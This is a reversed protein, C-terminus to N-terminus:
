LLGVWQVERLFGKRGAGIFSDCLSASHGFKLECIASEQERIIM